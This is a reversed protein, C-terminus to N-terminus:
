GFTVRNRGARKSEYMLRDARDVLSGVSDGPEAATAGVSITVPIRRGDVIFSSEEVLAKLKGAIARVGPEEVNQLLSVFEEGGWRSVVDSSRLGGETSRAVMRLVRDGVAHGYADNIRKFRDIDFFLLSFSWGYRELEDLRARIHMEAHRRNGLETLQDLLALKELEEIRRRAAEVRGNDEFVEVAGIVEGNRTLPTARALIPVRHGEKHRLYLEAELPGGGKMCDLAPCLADCLDGGPPESRMLLGDLCHSGLMEESRYGTVREAGPNWYTVRGERDLLYVPEYVADLILRYLDDGGESEM